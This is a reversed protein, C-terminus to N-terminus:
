KTVCTLTVPKKDVILKSKLEIGSATESVEFPGDGFPDRSKMAKPRGELQMQIATALMSREAVIQAERNYCAGVAPLALGSLIHNSRNAQLRKNFEALAPEVEAHPLGLIRALEDYDKEWASLQSEFGAEGQIARGSPADLRRLM